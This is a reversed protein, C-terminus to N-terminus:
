NLQSAEKPSHLEAIVSERTVADLGLVVENFAAIDEPFGSKKLVLNHFQVLNSAVDMQKSRYLEAFANLFTKVFEFEKDYNFFKDNSTYTLPVVLVETFETDVITYVSVGENVVFSCSKFM